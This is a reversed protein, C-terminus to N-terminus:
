TSKIPHVCGWLMITNWHAVVISCLYGSLVACNAPACYQAAVRVTKCSKAPAKVTRRLILPPVACTCKHYLVLCICWCYQARVRVTRLLHVFLVAFTCQCYQAPASITSSLKDLKDSLGASVKDIRRLHVSQVASGTEGDECYVTSLHILTGNHVLRTTKFLCYSFTHAYAFYFFLTLICLFINQLLQSFPM